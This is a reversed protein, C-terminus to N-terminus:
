LVPFTDNPLPHSNELTQDTNRLRFELYRNMVIWSREVVEGVIDGPTFDKSGHRYSISSDTILKLYQESIRLTVRLKNWSLSTDRRSKTDMGWILLRIGDISRACGILIDHHSRISHCLDRLVLFVRPDTRVINRIKFYSEQSQNSSYVTCFQSLHPNRIAFETKVDDSNVYHTIFAYLPDGTFFTILDLYSSIFDYSRKHVNDIFHTEWNDLQCVIEFDSGRINLTFNINIQPHPDYWSLKESDNFSKVLFDPQINGLFKVTPM